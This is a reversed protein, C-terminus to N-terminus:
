LCTDRTQQWGSISGDNDFCGGNPDNGSVSVGSDEWTNGCSNATSIGGGDVSFLGFRCGNGFKNNKIEVNTAVPYPGRNLLYMAYNGGNCWNSEITLNDVIGIQADVLFCANSRTGPVNIPMDFNNCRFVNNIGQRLQIGDAHAGVNTGIPHHVWNGEVLNNNVFKMADGGSIYMENRRAIIESGLIHASAVNTLTSDEILLNLNLGFNANICYWSGGCDMFVDRITVNNAKIKLSHNIKVGEIITGDVTITSPGTYIGLQNFPTKYGTNRAGPKGNRCENTAAPNPNGMCDSPCSRANENSDCVGNGCSNYKQIPPAKQISDSYNFYIVSVIVVVALILFIKSLNNNKIM